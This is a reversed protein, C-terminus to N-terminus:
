EKERLPFTITFQTGKSFSYEIKGGIQQTLSFVLRMGLTEPDEPNFGEPIGKGNDSVTLAVVGQPFGNKMSVVIGPNDINDFAHKLSNTVLENIILGCPIAENLGLAIDDIDLSVSVTGRNYTAILNNLLNAAYKGFDLEGIKESNYLIEHIIAMARVRNRSEELATIVSPETIRSIQLSLLSSVIQLNNKVRHHIEKLLVDKEKLSYQLADEIGKKETIDRILMVVRDSKAADGEIPSIRANFWRVGGDLPVSYDVNDSSGTDLVRPISREFPRAFDEGFIERITKGILQDRPLFLVSDDATWINMYRGDRAFEMVIDDLSAVLLHLEQERSLVEDKARQLERNQEELEITRKRVVRRLSWSWVLVVVFVVLVPSLVWMLIKGIDYQPRIRENYIGFWGHYLQEVTGNRELVTLAENIIHLLERNGKKVAYCVKHKILHENTAVIGKLGLHDAWYLGPLKQMLACDYRGTDLLRLMESYDETVIVRDTIHNKILFDHGIDGRTVIISRGPLDGTSIYPKGRKIFITHTTYDFPISFDYLKEREKSYAMEQVLQVRGTELNKRVDAWKELSFRFRLGTVKEIERSLDTCFGTPNGNSDLFSYPPFDYDGGVIVLTDRPIPASREAHVSIAPTLFVATICMCLIICRIYVVTGNSIEQWDRM